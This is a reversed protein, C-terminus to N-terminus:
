HSSVFVADDFAQPIAFSARMRQTEKAPTL